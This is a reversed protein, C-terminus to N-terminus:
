PPIYVPRCRQRLIIVSRVRCRLCWPARPVCCEAAPRGCPITHGCAGLPIFTVPPAHALRTGERHGTEKRLRQTPVAGDACTLWLARRATKWRQSSARAGGATDFAERVREQRRNGELVGSAQGEELFGERFGLWTLHRRQTGVAGM